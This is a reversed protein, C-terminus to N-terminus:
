QISVTMKYLGPNTFVHIIAEMLMRTSKDWHIRHFHLQRKRDKLSISHRNMQDFFRMVDPICRLSLLLCIFEITGHLICKNILLEMFYIRSDIDYQIKVNFLM